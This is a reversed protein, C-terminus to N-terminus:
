MWSPDRKTISDGNENQIQDAMCTFVYPYDKDRREGIVPVWRGNLKVSVLIRGERNQSLQVGEISVEPASAYRDEVPQEKRPPDDQTFEVWADNINLAIRLRGAEDTQIKLCDFRIIDGPATM